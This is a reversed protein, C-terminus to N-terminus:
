GYMMTWVKISLDLQGDHMQSTTTPQLKRHDRYANQMSTKTTICLSAIAQLIKDCM